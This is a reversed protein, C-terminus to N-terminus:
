PNLKVNKLITDFAEGYTATDSTSFIMTKERVPVIVVTPRLKTKQDTPGVYRMGKIGSVTVESSQMGGKAGKVQDDLSKKRKDYSDKVLEQKYAHTTVTTDVYGPDALGLFTGASASPSIAFSWSKPLGVEFSGFAEPATYVRLDENQQSTFEKIDDKRQQEAGDKAGNQYQAALNNATTTARAAFFITLIIFVAAVGIAVFMIIKTQKAKKAQKSSSTPVPPVPALPDPLNDLDAM